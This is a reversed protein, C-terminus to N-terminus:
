TFNLYYESLFLISIGAKQAVQVLLQLLQALWVLRIAIIVFEISLFKDQVLVLLVFDM